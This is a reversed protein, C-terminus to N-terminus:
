YKNGINEALRKLEERMFTPELLEASDGYSLILGYVWGDIPYEPSVIFDGSELRMIESEDFDDYVRFAMESNIKLKIRTSETDPSYEPIDTCDPIDEQSFSNDTVSVRKMRSLRFIRLAKKELCFGECYWTRSKFKLRIPLIERGSMEGRSNYYDFCLSRSESIARRITEFIDQGSSSWCSFDIELWNQNEVGFFASLKKLAEDKGIIAAFGQLASLIDSRENESLLFKDIAYGEMIRIGGGKGREAYIPVGAQSLAEIDRYVTRPSVEFHKALESATIGGRELLIHIMEFLRSNLM